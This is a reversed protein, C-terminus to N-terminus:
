ISSETDRPIFIQRMMDDVFAEFRKLTLPRTATTVPPPVPVDKGGLVSMIKESLIEWTDTEEYGFSEFFIACFDVDDASTQVHEFFGGGFSYTV